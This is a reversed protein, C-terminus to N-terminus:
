RRGVSKNKAQYMERKAAGFAKTYDRPNVRAADELFDAADEVAFENFTWRCSDAERDYHVNDPTHGMLKLYAALAMDDTRVTDYKTNEDVM